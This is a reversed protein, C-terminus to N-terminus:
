RCCGWKKGGGGKSVIKRNKEGRGGEERREVTGKEDM